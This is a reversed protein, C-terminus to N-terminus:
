KLAIRLNEPLYANRFVYDTTGPGSKSHCSQCKELKGQATVKTGKGNFVLYEWDGNDPNYGKEHRVMVTMLEPERSDPKTLKEKVIVTGVPFHPTKQKTMAEKGIANVYVYLYKQLHPSPQQSPFPSACQEAPAPEMRVPKANVKTWSKYGKILRDAEKSEPAPRSEKDTAAGGADQRFAPRFCALAGAGVLVTGVLM